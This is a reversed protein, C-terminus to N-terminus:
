YSSNLGQLLLERHALPAIAYGVRVKVVPCAGSVIAGVVEMRVYPSAEDWSSRMFGKSPKQEREAVRRRVNKKPYPKERRRNSLYYTTIPLLLELEGSIFHKVM